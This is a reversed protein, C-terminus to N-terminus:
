RSVGSVDAWGHTSPLVRQAPPQPSAPCRQHAALNLGHFHPVTQTTLTGRACPLSFQAIVTRFTISSDWARNLLHRAPM